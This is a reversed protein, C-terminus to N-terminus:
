AKQCKHRTKEKQNEDAKQLTPKEERKKKESARKKLHEVNSSSPKKVFKILNKQESKIIQNGRLTITNTSRIIARAIMAIMKM